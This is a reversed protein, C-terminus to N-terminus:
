DNCQHPYRVLFEQFIRMTSVITRRNGWNILNVNDKFVFRRFPKTGDITCSLPEFLVCPKNVVNYNRIFNTAVFNIRIHGIKHFTLQDCIFGIIVTDVDELLSLIRKSMCFFKVSLHHIVRKSNFSDYFIIFWLAHLSLM